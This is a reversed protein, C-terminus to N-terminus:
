EKSIPELLYRRIADLVSNVAWTPTSAPPGGFKLHIEKAAKDSADLRIGLEAPYVENSTLRAWITLGEQHPEGLQKAPLRADDEANEFNVNQPLDTLASKLEQELGQAHIHIPQPYGRMAKATVEPLTTEDFGFFHNGLIPLIKATLKSIMQEAEVAKSAKAGIRIDVIGAKAMLGLTPNSWREYEGVLDDLSAEGIGVTHLVRTRIITHIQWRERLYPIVSHAMLYEMEAPVGPLSILTNKGTDVIFGPATGVPNLIPIAGGPLYAQRRNNEPIARNLRSFYEEIQQWCEPHFELELGFASAVAQRTPDDVTPGLGGTTILIDVRSLIDRIIAAIRQENDGVTQTRYLDIGEDKLLHALFATNTDQIEGLLIETGITLIEAAPM